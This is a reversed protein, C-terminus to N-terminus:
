IPVINYYLHGLGTDLSPHLPDPAVGKRRFNPHLPSKAGGGKLQKTYEKISLKKDNQLCLQERLGVLYFRKQFITTRLYSKRISSNKEKAYTSLCIYMIYHLLYIFLINWNTDFIWNRSNQLFKFKRLKLM